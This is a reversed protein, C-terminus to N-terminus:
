RGTVRRQEFFKLAVEPFLIYSLVDEEQTIHSAIERRASELRPKLLEAPRGDIVEEDGIIQRRIDPSIEGPPRGYL